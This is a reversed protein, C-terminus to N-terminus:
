FIFCTQLLRFAYTTREFTWFWSAITFKLKLQWHIKLDNLSFLYQKIKWSTVKSEISWLRKRSLLQSCCTLILGSQLGPWYGKNEAWAQSCRPPQWSSVGWGRGGGGRGCPRGLWLCGLGPGLLSISLFFLIDTGFNINITLRQDKRSCIDVRLSLKWVFKTDPRLYM